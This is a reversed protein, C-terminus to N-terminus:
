RIRNERRWQRHLEAVQKISLNHKGAVLTRATKLDWEVPPAMLNEVEAGIGGKPRGRKRPTKNAAAEAQRAYEILKLLRAAALPVLDAPFYAKCAEWLEADTLPKQRVREFVRRTAPDGDWEAVVPGAAPAEIRPPKRRASM